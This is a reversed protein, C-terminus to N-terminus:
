LTVEPMLNLSSLIAPVRELDLDRNLIGLPPEPFELGAALCEREVDDLLDSEDTWEADWRNLPATDFHIGTDCDIIRLSGRVESTRVVRRGAARHRARALAEVHEVRTTWAQVQILWAAIVTGFEEVTLEGGDLPVHEAPPAAPSPTTAGSQTLTNM